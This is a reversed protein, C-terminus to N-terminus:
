EGKRAASKAADIADKAVKEKEEQTMAGAPVAPEAAKPPAAPAAQPPPSAPAQAPPAPEQGCASLFVAMVTASLIISKM